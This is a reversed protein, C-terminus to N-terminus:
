GRCKRVLEAVAQRNALRETSSLSRQRNMYACPVGLKEVTSHGREWAWKGVFVVVRPQLLTLWREFHTSVCVAALRDNPPKDAVTRCRIVNCYAIDELSLGCERLPFYNNTVPWTAIFRKLVDSLEAYRQETPEDRLARLAATYPRDQVELTKPTGPNQGVLLVRTKAYHPGIYGPQPVNEQSDRLLNRCTQTTCKTCAIVNAFEAAWNIGDAM